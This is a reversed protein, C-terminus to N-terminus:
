KGEKVAPENHVRAALANVESLQGGLIDKISPNSTSNAARKLRAAETDLASILLLKDASSLNM